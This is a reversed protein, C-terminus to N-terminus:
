RCCTGSNWLASGGRYVVVNGDDQVALFAGPQGSTGSSWLPSGGSSYLVANGDDQMVFGSIERGHTGTSWLAGVGAQYLVLNGDTQAVLSFRGDCSTVAENPWLAEGPAFVGCAGSPPAPDPTPEPTPETPTAGCATGSTSRLLDIPNIDHKYDGDPSVNFHLHVGSTGTNGMYGVLQGAAVTDGKAVVAEDLHGYYYEWGCADRLRVRLGSTDSPTGVAVVTADSVAVMPARHHAFVDIGHHDGGWDSNANADPCSVDCTGSGCSAHDYGINHPAAVPFTNMLPDCSARSEAEDDEETGFAPDDYVGEACGGALLGVVLLQVVRDARGGRFGPTAM